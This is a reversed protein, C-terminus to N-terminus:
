QKNDGNNKHPPRPKSFLSWALVGLMPAGIFLPTLSNWNLM